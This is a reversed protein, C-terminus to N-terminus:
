GPLGPDTEVLSHMYPLSLPASCPHLIGYTHCRPPSQAVHPRRICCAPVFVTCFYAHCLQSMSGSPTRQSKLMCVSLTILALLGSLTSTFFFSFAQWNTSTATGHSPRTPLLSISFTSLFWSRAKSSRFNHSTFTFTAGM